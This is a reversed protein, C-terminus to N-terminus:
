NTSKKKRHMVITHVIPHYTDVQADEHSALPRFIFYREREKFVSNQTSMKM